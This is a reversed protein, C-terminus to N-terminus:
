GLLVVISALPSVVSEGPATLIDTCCINQWNVLGKCKAMLICTHKSLNIDRSFIKNVDLNIITSDTEGPLLPFVFMRPSNCSPSRV